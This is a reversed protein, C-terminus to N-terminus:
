PQQKIICIENLRQQAKIPSHKLKIISDNEIKSENPSMPGPSPSM